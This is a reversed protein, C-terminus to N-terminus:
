RPLSRASARVKSPRWSADRWDPAPAHFTAICAQLTDQPDHVRKAGALLDFSRLNMPGCHRRDNRLFRKDKGFRCTVTGPNAGVAQAVDSTLAPIVGDSSFLDEAVALVTERLNPKRAKEKGALKRVMDITSNYLYTPCTLLFGTDRAKSALDIAGSSLPGTHRNMGDTERSDQRAGYFIPREYLSARTLRRASAGLQNRQANRAQTFHLIVRAPARRGTM